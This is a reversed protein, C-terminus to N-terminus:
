PPRGKSFSFHIWLLERSSLKWLSSWSNGFYSTFDLQMHKLSYCHQILLHWYSYDNTQFLASSAEQRGIAAIALPHFISSCYLRLSFQKKCTTILKASQLGAMHKAAIPLKQSQSQEPTFSSCVFTERPPSYMLWLQFFEHMLANAHCWSRTSLSQLTQEKLKM